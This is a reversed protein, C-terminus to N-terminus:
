GFAVAGNGLLGITESARVGMGKEFNKTVYRELRMGGRDFYDQLCCTEISNARGEGSLMAKQGEILQQLRDRDPVFEGDQILIHFHDTNMSHTRERVAVGKLCSLGKDYRKKYIRRNLHSILLNLLRECEKRNTNKAFTITLHYKTNLANLWEVWSNRVRDLENM